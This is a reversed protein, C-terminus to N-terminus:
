CTTLTSLTTLLARQMYQLPPHVHKSQLRPQHILNYPRHTHISVTETTTVTGLYSTQTFFTTLDTLITANPNGPTPNVNVTRTWTAADVYRTRTYTVQLVSRKLTATSYFSATHETFFCTVATPVDGPIFYDDIAYNAKAADWYEDQVEWGTVPETMFRGAALSHKAQLPTYGAPPPKTSTVVPSMTRTVIATLTRSRWVTTRSTVTSTYHTHALPNPRLISSIEHFILTADETTTHPRPTLVETKVLGVGSTTTISFTPLRDKPITQTANRSTNKERFTLCQTITSFTTKTPSLTAFSTCLFLILIGTSLLIHKVAHNAM